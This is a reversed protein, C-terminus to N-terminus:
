SAPSPATEAAPGAARGVRFGTEGANLDIAAHIVIAPWLSGSAVVIIAFALGVIATKPVHAAGLYIHACGFLISSIIVGAVLGLWATILWMLLGRFLIEECVGATISLLWFGRREGSTQPVLPNAFALQERLRAVAKPRALAKQVRRMQLLLLVIVIAAALIGISLRLPRTSGLWLASWPRAKAVWTAVVLSTMIWQAIVEDRYIRGRVGPVGARIARLCRPWYWLWGLVAELVLLAVVAYDFVGPRM